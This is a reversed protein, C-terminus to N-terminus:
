QLSYACASGGRTRVMHNRKSSILYYFLSWKLTSTTICKQIHVYESIHIVYMRIRLTLLFRLKSQDITEVHQRAEFQCFEILYISSLIRSQPVQQQKKRTQNPVPLVMCGPASSSIYRVSQQNISSKTKNPKNHVDINTQSNNLYIAFYVPLSLTRLHNLFTGQLENQSLADM